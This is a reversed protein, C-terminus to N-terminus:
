PQDCMLRSRCEALTREPDDNVMVTIKDIRSRTCWAARSRMVEVQCGADIVPHAGATNILFPTRNIVLIRPRRWPRGDAGIRQPRM